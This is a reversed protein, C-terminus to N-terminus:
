ECVCLYVCVCLSCILAIAFVDGCCEGPLTCVPRVRLSSGMVILLDASDIDELLKQGFASPLDEGFFVIDPKMVNFEQTCSKCYPIKESLIEERVAECDVQQKCRICSATRFSGHCEVVNEIGALQELTDINQTYNRRLKGKQELLRIFRHSPSPIYNGPFLNQSSSVIRLYSPLPQLFTFFFLYKCVKAFAFFPDPDEVFYHIDFIMQPDPLDFRDEIM